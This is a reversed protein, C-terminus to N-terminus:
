KLLLNNFMGEIRDVSSRVSLHTEVYKRGNRGLKQALERNNYLELIKQALQKYDGAPVVFGSQAKRILEPGDGDLNMTGIVPIGASMISLIKSPVVPIGVEKRLTALSVDSSHLVFPYYERPVPPLLLVNDLNFEAKLKQAEDKRVGDGVILFVIDKHAKLENAARLIVEIDQFMGLTGAFSVVFKDNLNYRESFENNRQGPMVESDDIWNELVHVKDFNNGSSKLRNIIHFANKESHAAILDAKKYAELEIKKFIKISLKNKLIGYTIMEDPHLDQVNLLFRTGYKERIKVGTWYLSIPPSYIISFDNGDVYDKGYKYLRYGVEFYEIRRRFFNTRKVYPLDVRVIKINDNEEILVNNKTRRKWSKYLEESVNYRPLGTLVTVKHGRSSLEKALYYFLHSAAGIEPPFYNTVLLFNKASNQM